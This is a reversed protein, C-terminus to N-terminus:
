SLSFRFVFSFPSFFLFFFFFVALSLLFGFFPRAYKIQLVPWQASIFSGGRTNCPSCLLAMFRQTQSQGLVGQRPMVGVAAAAAAAAADCAVSKDKRRISENAYAEM